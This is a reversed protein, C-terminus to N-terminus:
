SHPIATDQCATVKTLNIYASMLICSMCSNKEVSAYSILLLKASMICLTNVVIQEEKSTLEHESLTVFFM